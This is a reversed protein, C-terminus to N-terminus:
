ATEKRTALSIAESAVNMAQHDTDTFDFRREWLQRRVARLAKLLKPATAILRANADVEADESGGDYLVKAIPRELTEVTIAGIDYRVHWDGKSHETMSNDKGTEQM